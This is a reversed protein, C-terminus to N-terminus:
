HSWEIGCDGLTHALKLGVLRKHGWPIGEDFRNPISLFIVDPKINMMFLWYLHIFFLRDFGLYEASIVMIRVIDYNPVLSQKLLILLTIYFSIPNFNLFKGLFMLSEINENSNILKSLLKGRRPLICLCDCPPTRYFPTVLFKAVNVFFCRQSLRQKLLTAPSLGAFPLPKKYSFEEHHIWSLYQSLTPNTM